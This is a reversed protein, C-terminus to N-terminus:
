YRRIKRLNQKIFSNTKRERGERRGERGGQLVTEDQNIPTRL